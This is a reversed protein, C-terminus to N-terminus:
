NDSDYTHLYTDVLRTKTKNSWKSNALYTKVKDPDNLDTVQAVQKLIQIISKITEDAKGEKREKTM